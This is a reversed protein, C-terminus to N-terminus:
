NKKLMVFYIHIEKYASFFTKKKLGKAPTSEM